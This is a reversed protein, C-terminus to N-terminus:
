LHDGQGENWCLNHWWSVLTENSDGNNHYLYWWRHKAACEPIKFHLFCQPQLMLTLNIM